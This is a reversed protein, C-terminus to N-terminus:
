NRFENVMDLYKESEKGLCFLLDLCSLNQTFGLKDSFCQYYTPFYGNEKGQQQVKFMTRYDKEYERKYIDTQFIETEIRFHKKCFFLIDNNLDLLKLYNGSFFTKVESAYYEFFPSKNYASCITRWHKVNWNESYCIEIDKTQQSLSNYSRKLPIMLPLIGNASLVYTRNRYTQKEFTEFREIGISKYRKVEALYSIPPFFATSFIAINNVM